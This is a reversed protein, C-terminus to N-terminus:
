NKKYTMTSPIVIEALSNSILFVQLHNAQQQQGDTKTIAAPVSFGMNNVCYLEETIFIATLSFIHLFERRIILNIHINMFM